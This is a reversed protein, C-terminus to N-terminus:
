YFDPNKAVYVHRKATLYRINDKNQWKDRISTTYRNNHNLYTYETARSRHAERKVTYYVVRRNNWELSAPPKGGTWRPPASYGAEQSAPMPDEQYGAAAPPLAAQTGVGHEEASGGSGEEWADPFSSAQRNLVVHPDSTCTAVFNKFITSDHGSDIECYRNLDTLRGPGDDMPEQLDKKRNNPDPYM